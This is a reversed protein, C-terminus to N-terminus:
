WLLEGERKDNNNKFPTQLQAAPTSQTLQPPPASNQLPKAQDLTPAPVVKHVHHTPDSLDVNWVLGSAPIMFHHQHLANTAQDQAGATQDMQASVPSSQAQAKNFNVM